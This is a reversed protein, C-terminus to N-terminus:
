TSAIDELQETQPPAVKVSLSKLVRAFKAGLFVYYLVYSNVNTKTLCKTLLNHKVYIIDLDFYFFMSVTACYLINGFVWELSYKNTISPDTGGRRQGYSASM